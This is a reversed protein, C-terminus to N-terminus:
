DFLHFCIVTYKGQDAGRMFLDWPFRKRLLFLRTKISVEIISVNYGRQTIMVQINLIPSPILRYHKVSNNQSNLPSRKSFISVSM